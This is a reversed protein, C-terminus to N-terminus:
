IVKDQKIIVDFHKTFYLWRMVIQQKLSNYIINTSTENRGDYLELDLIGTNESDRHFSAQDTEIVFQTFGRIHVSQM